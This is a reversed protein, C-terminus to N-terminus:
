GPARLRTLVAQADDQETTIGSAQLRQELDSDNAEHDLERMAEEVDAQHTQRTKIRELSQAIDDLGTRLSVHHAGLQRTVHASCQNAKALALERKYYTLGRAADRLGSRLAQERCALQAAHQRQQQLQKEDEAIHTALELALADESRAMAARAQDERRAIQQALGTNHRELQRHHAMLGALEHKAVRMAQETDRLEQAMIRLAHADVLREAPEHASARLLTSMKTWITM